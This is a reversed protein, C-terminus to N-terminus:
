SVVQPSEATFYMVLESLLPYEVLSQMRFIIMQPFEATSYMIFAVVLPVEAVCLM